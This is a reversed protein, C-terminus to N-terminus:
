IGAGLFQKAQVKDLDIVAACLACVRAKRGRYRLLFENRQVEWHQALNRASGCSPCRSPAAAAYTAGVFANLRNM